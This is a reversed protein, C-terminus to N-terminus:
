LLKDITIPLDRVRKGTAHFVANAIAAPVGTIGIEGIGKVGIENVYPDDEEVLIVEIPPVDANVPVLYESLDANVVRARRDDFRMHERLAMGIGWVIGGLFQSRATKANLIRGCAFAAVVRVLQVTGLDEDVRVEVFDAGFSRMGFRHQKPDFGPEEASQEISKMGKRGLLADISEARRADKKAVVRGGEFTVEEPRLGHLPSGEDAIALAIVENKLATCARSVASGVSAATTSGGSTPTEPLETDGLDFRVRELPMGLADAAVQAMVTYTGTGLDQTGALVLANGDAYLRALAAAKRVHVPYSATAMGYGIRQSGERLSGPPPLKKPWGFHESARKYCDKLSKSSWPLGREPDVDAHNKLRLAIPDMDLAHALEDMACELAFNGTSEGPARQFTPTGTDLRVIRGRATVNPCKYLQRPQANTREFFEDFRSTSSWGEYHMAVLTGDKDAGLSIKQLTQPRFGVMGFMLQRPVVIKVPRGVVKAAMVALPTHAWVSGKCGFGGGVYPSIVRVDHPDLGFTSSVKRRVEFIGQTSDYVTLANAGGFVAISAHPEMPVHCEFPTTYAVDLRVAARALAREADGRKADHDLDEFATTPVEAQALNAALDVTPEGESVYKVNVLSAAHQARELSDAVVLAVPQRDFHVTADQLLPLVRDTIVKKHKPDEGPAPAPPPAVKPANEHTLVALVGPALRADEAEISAIRGKAITSAVIVGYAVGQVPTDAAYRATGTVKRVGDLRDLGDGIRKV